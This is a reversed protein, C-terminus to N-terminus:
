RQATLVISAGNAGLGLVATQGVRAGPVQRQGAQGRLQWVLECVQLVGQATTAEGFSLFGGSPNIPLKGAIGFEGRELMWDAQGPELFGFSEPWALVHWATNDAMELLDVDATGLGAAHLAGAVAGAVESTHPVDLLGVNQSVTPVRIAPDGFRGTAVASGAVRVLPVGLRRAAAESGLVIAAAGDSVACIELLHLPDSVMPSAFVDAVTSESRFRARPNALAHRRMLVAAAALTEATTGHDHMRRRAELAWYAPNTAGVAVWRVFDSDTIDDSGGPPRPIFGKPMKEAGLAAVIEAQGSAIMAAATHVAIGGAACGGGVNVAAAGNEAVTQLVENAHLGWGMGGEFRSSAAVLGQLDRWAFGADRMAYGLTEVALQLQSKGPWKGWPHAAVGLVYVGTM